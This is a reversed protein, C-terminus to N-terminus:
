DRIIEISIKIHFYICLAINIPSTIIWLVVSLALGGVGGASPLGPTADYDLASNGFWTILVYDIFSIISFVIVTSIYDFQGNIIDFALFCGLLVYGLLAIPTLVWWLFKYM